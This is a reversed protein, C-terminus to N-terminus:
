VPVPNIYVSEVQEGNVVQLLEANVGLNNIIIAQLERLHFIYVKANIQTKLNLQLV